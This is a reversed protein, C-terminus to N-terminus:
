HVDLTRGPRAIGDRNVVSVRVKRVPADVTGAVDLVFRRGGRGRAFDFGDRDATPPEGIATVLGRVPRDTRVVVRVHLGRRTATAGIIRPVPRLPAGRLTPRLVTATTSAGDPSCATVVVRGRSRAQPTAFTSAGVPQLAVTRGTSGVPATVGVIFGDFPDDPDGQQRREWPPSVSRARSRLRVDCPGDTCRVHIRLPSGVHLRRSSVVTARLRPAIGAPTPAAGARVVTLRGDGRPTAQGLEISARANDTWAVAVAGDPLVFARVADAPRCVSGLREPQGLGGSFTGFAANATVVGADDDSAIWAVAVQDGAVAASLQASRDTEVPAGRGLVVLGVSVQPGDSAPPHTLDRLTGFAGGAPRSAYSVRGETDSAAVVAEGGPGLAAAVRWPSEPSSGHLRPLPAFDQSGPLREYVVPPGSVVALLAHGDPNVVLAMDSVVGDDFRQAIRFAGRTDSTAVIVRPNLGSAATSWALTARGTGDIGAVVEGGFRDDVREDLVTVRGFTTSGAPRTAVLLRTRSTGQSGPREDRLSESWAVVAAGSANVALAHQGFEAPRPSGLSQPPGGAAAVRTQQPGPATRRGGPVAAGALSVGGGPAGSVAPCTPLWGLTTRDMPRLAGAEVQLVDIPSQSGRFPGALGLRGETADRLCTAIGRNPVDYSAVPAWAHASGSWLLVVILPALACAIRRM